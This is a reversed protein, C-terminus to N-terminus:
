TACICESSLADDGARRAQVRRLRVDRRQWRRGGTLGQSSSVLVMSGGSGKRVISPVTAVITHWVGKLTTDVITNFVPEARTETDGIAVVGANAIVIDIDGLADIGAQM